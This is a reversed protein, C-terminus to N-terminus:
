LHVDSGFPHLAQRALMNVAVTARNYGIHQIQETNEGRWFSCPSSAARSPTM